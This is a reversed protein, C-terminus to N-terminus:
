QVAAHKSLHKHQLDDPPLWLPLLTLSLVM